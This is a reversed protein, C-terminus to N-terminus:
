DFPVGVESVKTSPDWGVSAVLAAQAPPFSFPRM